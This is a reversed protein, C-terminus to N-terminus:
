MSLIKLYDAYDLLTSLDGMHHFKGWFVQKKLYALRAM